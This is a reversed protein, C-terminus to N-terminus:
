PGLERRLLLVLDADAHQFLARLDARVDQRSRYHVRAREGLEYRVPPLEVGREIRGDALVAEHEEGLAACVLQRIEGKRCAEPVVAHVHHAEAVDAAPEGLLGLPETHFNKGAERGRFHQVAIVARDGADSGAVHADPAITFRSGCVLRAHRQLAAIREERFAAAPV